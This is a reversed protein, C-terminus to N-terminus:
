VRPGDGLRHTSALYFMRDKLINKVPGPVKKCEEITHLLINKISLRPNGAKKMAETATVESRSSRILSEMLRPFSDIYEKKIGYNVDIAVYNQFNLIQRGGPNSQLVILEIEGSYKWSLRSELNNKFQVFAADSFYWAAGHARDVRRYGRREALSADNTYGVAYISCFRGSNHHIYDFEDIIEKGGPLSPRVFLLIVIHRENLEREIAEIQEYTNVAFM